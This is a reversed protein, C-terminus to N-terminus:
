GHSHNRPDLPGTPTTGALGFAPEGEDLHHHDDGVAGLAGRAPAFDAPTGDFSVRGGSMVVIRTVIDSLAELEHTVILM